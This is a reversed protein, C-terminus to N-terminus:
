AASLNMIIPGGVKTSRLNIKKSNIKSKITEDLDIILPRSKIQKFELGNNWTDSKDQRWEIRFLAIQKCSSRTKFTWDSSRYWSKFISGEQYM